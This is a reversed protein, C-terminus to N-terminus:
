QHEGVRVRPARFNLWQKRPRVGNERAHSCVWCPCAALDWHQTMIIELITENDYMM